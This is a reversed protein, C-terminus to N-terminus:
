YEMLIVISSICQNVNVIILKSNGKSCLNDNLDIMWLVCQDPLITIHPSIVPFIKSNLNLYEETMCSFLLFNYHWEIFNYYKFTIM